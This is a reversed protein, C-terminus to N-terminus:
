FISLRSRRLCKVKQHNESSERKPKHEVALNPRLVAAVLLYKVIEDLVHPLVQGAAGFIEHKQASLRGVVGDINSENAM